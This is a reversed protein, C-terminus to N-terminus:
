TPCQGVVGMVFRIHKCPTKRYLFASCTCTYTDDTRKVIYIGTSGQIMFLEESDVNIRKLLM